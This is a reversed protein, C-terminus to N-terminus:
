RLQQLHCLFIVYVLFKPKTQQYLTYATHNNYFNASSVPSITNSYKENQLCYTLKGRKVVQSIKPFRKYISDTYVLDLMEKKQSTFQSTFSVKVPVQLWTHKSLLPIIKQFVFINDEFGHRIRQIKLFQLLPFQNGMISQM